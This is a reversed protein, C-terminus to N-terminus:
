QRFGHAKCLKARDSREPETAQLNIHLNRAGTYDDDREGTYHTYTMSDFTWFPVYLGSLKGLYAFHRLTTPAFWRRRIWKEFASIAQRENIAFPILGNPQV